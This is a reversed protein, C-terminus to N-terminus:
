DDDDRLAVQVTEVAGLRADGRQPALHIEFYETAEPISDSVLPIYLRRRADAAGLSEVRRGFSAFDERAHATGDTTWWVVPVSSTGGTRVIEVSVVGDSERVSVRPAGFSITAPEPTQALPSARSSGDEGVDVIPQAAPTDLEVDVAATADPAPGAGGDGAHLGADLAGELATSLGELRESMGALTDIAGTKQLALAVAAIALLCVALRRLSRRNAALAYERRPPALLSALETRAAAPAPARTELELAETLGATALFKCLSLEHRKEHLVSEIAGLLRKPAKTGDLSRGHQPLRRGTHLEYALAAFDRVDDAPAAAGPRQRLLRSAMFNLLV